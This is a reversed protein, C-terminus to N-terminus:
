RKAALHNAANVTVPRMIGNTRNGVADEVNVVAQAHVPGLKAVIARDHAILKIRVTKTDASPVTFTSLGLLHELGQKTARHDVNQLFLLGGCPGSAESAPCTLRIKAVGGATLTVTATSIRLKPPTTDIV